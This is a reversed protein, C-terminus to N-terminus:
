QWNKSLTLENEPYFIQMIFENMDRKEENRGTKGRKEENRRTQWIWDYGNGHGMLELSCLPERVNQVLADCTIVHGMYTGVYLDTNSHIIAPAWCCHNTELSTLSVPLQLESSLTFMVDDYMDMCINGVRLGPLQWLTWFGLTWIMRSISVFDCM